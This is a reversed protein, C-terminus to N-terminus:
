SIYQIIFVFTFKDWENELPQFHRIEAISPKANKTPWESVPDRYLYVVFAFGESRRSLNAQELLLSSLVCRILWPEQHPLNVYFTGGLIEIDYSCLLVGMYKGKIKFIM